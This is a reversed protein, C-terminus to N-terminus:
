AEQECCPESIAQPVNPTRWHTEYCGTVFSNYVFLGEEKSKQPHLLIKTEMRDFCYLSYFVTLHLCCPSHIFTCCTSLFEPADAAGKCAVRDREPVM